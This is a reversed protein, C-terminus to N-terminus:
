TPASRCCAPHEHRAATSRRPKLQSPRPSGQAPQPKCTHELVQLLMAQWGWPQAQASAVPSCLPRTCTSISVAGGPGSRQAPQLSRHAAHRQPDACYRRRRQVGPGKPGSSRSVLSGGYARGGDNLRSGTSCRRCGRAGSGCAALRLWARQMRLVDNGCDEEAERRRVAHIHAFHRHTGHAGSGVSCSWTFARLKLAGNCAGRQAIQNSKGAQGSAWGSNGVGKGTFYEAQM